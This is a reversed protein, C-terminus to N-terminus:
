RLSEGIMAKEVGLEAIFNTASIDSFIDSQFDGNGKFFSPSLGLIPHIGRTHNQSGAHLQTM